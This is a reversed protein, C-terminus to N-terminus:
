FSNQEILFNNLQSKNLQGNTLYFKNTSTVLQEFSKQPIQSITLIVKPWNVKQEIPITWNKCQESLIQEISMSGLQLDRLIPQTAHRFM